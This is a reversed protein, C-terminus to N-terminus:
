IRFTKLIAGLPIEKIAPTLEFSFLPNLKVTQVSALALDQLKRGSDIRFCELMSGFMIATLYPHLSVVKCPLTQHSFTSIMTIMSM